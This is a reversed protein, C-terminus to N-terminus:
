QRSLTATRMPHRAEYAKHAAVEVATHPNAMITYETDFGSGERKVTIDYGKSDGWKKNAVYAKIASKISSQTIELIQVKQADNWVFAWFDKVREAKGEKDLRIDPLPLLPSRACVFRSTMKVAGRDPDTRGNLARSRLPNGLM